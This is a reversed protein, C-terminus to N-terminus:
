LLVVDQWRIQPHMNYCVYRMSGMEFDFPLGSTAPSIDCPSTHYLHLSGSPIAQSESEEEVMVELFFFFLLTHPLVCLQM